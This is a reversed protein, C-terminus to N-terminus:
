AWSKKEINSELTEKRFQERVIGLFLQDKMFKGNKKIHSM